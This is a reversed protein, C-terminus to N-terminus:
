SPRWGQRTFKTLGSLVAGCGEFAKKYLGYNKTYCINGNMPLTGDKYRVMAASGPLPSSFEFGKGGQSKIVDKEDCLIVKLNSALDIGAFLAM